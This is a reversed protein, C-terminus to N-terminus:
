TFGMAQLIVINHERELKELNEIVENFVSAEIISSTSMFRLRM